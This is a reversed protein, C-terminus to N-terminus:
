SSFGDNFWSQNRELDASRAKRQKSSLTSVASAMIPIFEDDMEEVLKAMKQSSSNFFEDLSDDEDRKRKLFPLMKSEPCVPIMQSSPTMFCVEKSKPSQSVLMHSMCTVRM